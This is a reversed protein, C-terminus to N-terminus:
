NQYKSIEGSCSVLRDLTINYSDLVFVYFVTDINIISNYWSLVYFIISYM